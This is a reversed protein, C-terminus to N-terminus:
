NAAFTSSTTTSVQTICGNSSWLSTNARTIAATTTTQVYGNNLAFNVYEPYQSLPDTLGNGIGLTKLNIKVLGNGQGADVIANQQEFYSDAM